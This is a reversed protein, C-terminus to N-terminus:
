GGLLDVELFVAGDVPNDNYPPIERFGLSRYLGLAATMSPLSDLRMREYGLQVARDVIGQALRRGVGGGRAGPRVYLRKMECIDPGLPRLAVCGEVGTTGDALLLAGGPPAYRGPLGAVEERFGQFCLDVGIVAEYELFLRRVLDIEGPMAADRILPPSDVNM